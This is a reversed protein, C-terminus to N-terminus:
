DPKTRKLLVFYLNQARPITLFIEWGEDGLRNLTEMMTEPKELNISVQRYEWKQM